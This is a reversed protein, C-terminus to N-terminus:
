SSTRGLSIFPRLCCLTSSCMPQNIPLEHLTALQILLYTTEHLIICSYSCCVLLLTLDTQWCIQSLIFQSISLALLTPIM